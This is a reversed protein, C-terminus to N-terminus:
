KILLSGSNLQLRLVLKQRQADLLTINKIRRTQVISLEQFASSSLRFVIDGGSNDALAGTKFRRWGTM